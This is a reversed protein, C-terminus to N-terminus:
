RLFPVLRLTFRFALASFLLSFGEPIRLHYALWGAFGTFQVLLPESGSGVSAGVVDMLGQLIEAFVNILVVPLVTVFLGWLVIKLAVFRAVSSSLLSGVLGLVWTLLASM